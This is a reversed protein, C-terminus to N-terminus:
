GSAPMRVGPKESLRVRFQLSKFARGNALRRYKLYIGRQMMNM